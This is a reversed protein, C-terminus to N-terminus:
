FKEIIEPDIAKLTLRVYKGHLPLGDSAAIALARKEAQAPAEYRYIQSYELPLGAYPDWDSKVFSKMARFKQFRLRAEIKTPTDIEDVVDM